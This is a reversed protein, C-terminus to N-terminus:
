NRWQAQATARNNAGDVVTVTVFQVGKDSGLLLPFNFKEAPGDLVGDLPAAVPSGEM